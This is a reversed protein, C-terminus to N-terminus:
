EIFGKGGCAECVKRSTEHELQVDIVTAAATIRKATIPGSRAARTLVEVRKEQPVMALARAQSEKVLKDGIPSMAVSAKVDGSEILRYAYARSIGYEAHCFDEFTPYEKKYLAEDRIEKLANAIEFRDRLWTHIKTKLVEYRNAPKSAGSRASTVAMTQEVTKRKGSPKSLPGQFRSYMGM